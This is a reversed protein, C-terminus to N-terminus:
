EFPFSSIVNRMNNPPKSDIFSIAKVSGGQVNDIFQILENM